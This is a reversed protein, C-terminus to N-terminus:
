GASKASGDNRERMPALFVIGLVMSVVTAWAVPVFQGRFLTGLGAALLMGPLNVLAAVALYTSRKDLRGMELGLTSNGIDCLSTGAGFLLIIWRWSWLDGAWISWAAMGGYLILGLLMTPKAGHRHGIVSAALNGAVAGIMQLMVVEGLFSVPKHLSEQCHMTLFPMVVYMGNRFFRALLMLMYDRDGLIMAPASRLNSLLDHHAPPPPRRDIPERTLAFVAYSVMVVGFTMAHLIGYGFPDDPYRQLVLEMVKGAGIGIVCAVTARIGFMLQRHERVVCKTLLQQWATLGVGGAIGALLPALAVAALAVSQARPALLLALTAALFTLRQTLGCWLFFPKFNRMREIRHAVFIPSVLMGAQGLLPVMSKLWEPGNLTDIMKPLLTTQSIFNLGGMYLGGEIAGIWFNFRPSAVPEIWGHDDREYEVVSAPGAGADGTPPDTDTQAQGTGM